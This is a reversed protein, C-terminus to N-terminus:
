DKFTTDDALTFDPALAAININTLLPHYILRSTLPTILDAELVPADPDISQAFRVTTQIETAIKELDNM